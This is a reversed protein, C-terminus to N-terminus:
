MQQAIQSNTSSYSLNAVDSQTFVKGYHRPIYPNQSPAGMSVISTAYRNNPYPRLVEDGVHNTPTVPVTAMYQDSDLSDKKGFACPTVSKETSSPFSQAKANKCKVRPPQALKSESRSIRTGAQRRVGTAYDMILSSARTSKKTSCTGTTIVSEKVRALVINQGGARVRDSALYKSCSLFSPINASSAM